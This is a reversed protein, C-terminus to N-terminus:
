PIRDPTLAVQRMRYYNEQDRPQRQRRRVRHSNGSSLNSKANVFRNGHAVGCNKAGYTKYGNQSNISESKKNLQWYGGNGKRLGGGVANSTSVGAASALKQHATSTSTPKFSGIYTKGTSKDHIMTKGAM